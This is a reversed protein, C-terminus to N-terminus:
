KLQYKNLITEIESIRQNQLKVEQDKEILHLTLEEVKKLLVKNMEGLSVGNAEVDTAKPVDPLHGHAKIFQETETLSPLKYEPKFVYDPWKVAQVKIEEAVVKGKVVLKEKPDVIGIGVNGSQAQQPSALIVDGNPKFSLPALYGGGKKIAYFEMSMGNRTGSFHADKRYSILWSIPKGNPIIDFNNVYFSVDSYTDVDGDGQITIGKRQNGVQINLLDIPSTTGIGVNGTTPFTNSQSFSNSYCFCAGLILVSTFYKSM